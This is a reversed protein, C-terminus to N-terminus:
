HRPLGSSILAMRIREVGDAAQQGGQKLMSDSLEGLVHLLEAAITTDAPSHKICVNVAYTLAIIQGQLFESSTTM